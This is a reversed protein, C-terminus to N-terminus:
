EKKDDRSCCVQNYYWQEIYGPFEDPLLLADAIIREINQIVDMADWHSYNVIRKGANYSVTPSEKTRRSYEGGLRCLEKYQSETFNNKGICYDALFSTNLHFGDGVVVWYWYAIRNSLLAICFDRSERDPLYYVKTAGSIYNNGKEDTSPPLHDYACIWNYATGNVALSYDSCYNVCMEKLNSNSRNFIRFVNKEVESSLKPIGKLLSIDSIECLKYNEFLNNRNVSAWRQLTTTFIAPKRKFTNRFLITNRTKVQDGFLSDPSRDYNMFTWMADDSQIRNRLEAFTKGKSYCISLPLVLASCSKESSYTMINKVFPVFLNSDRGVSVYPPNGIICDFQSPLQKYLSIVSQLHVADGVFFSNDIVNWVDKLRDDAKNYNELYYQLFLTKCCDIAAQSIDVGWICRKLLDLSIDFDHKPNAANELFILSELLFVGSGCSCDLVAPRTNEPIVCSICKSIMFDVVDTPTYYIGQSKKRKNTSRVGRSLAVEFYEDADYELSELSYNILARWDAYQLLPLIHNLAGSVEIYQLANKQFLGFIDDIRNFRLRIDSLDTKKYETFVKQKSLYLLCVLIIQRTEDSSLNVNENDSALALRAKQIIDALETIKTNTSTINKQPKM